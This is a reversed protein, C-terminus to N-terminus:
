LMTRRLHHNCLWLWFRFLLANTTAFSGSGGCTEVIYYFTFPRKESLRRVTPSSYELAKRVCQRIRIQM